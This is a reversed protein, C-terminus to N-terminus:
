KARKCSAKAPVVSIFSCVMVVISVHSIRKSFV